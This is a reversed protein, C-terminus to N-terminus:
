WRIYTGHYYALISLCLNLFPMYIDITMKYGLNIPPMSEVWFLQYGFIKFGSGSGVMNELGSGYGFGCGQRCSQLCHLSLLLWKSRATPGNRLAKEVSLSELRCRCKCKLWIYNTVKYIIKMYNKWENHLKLKNNKQLGSSVGM